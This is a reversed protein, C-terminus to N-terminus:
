SRHYACGSRPWSVERSAVVRIDSESSLMKL